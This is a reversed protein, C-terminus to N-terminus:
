AGQLVYNNARLREMDRVPPLGFLRSYERSFQSPSEYGVRHGATAADVQDNLLMRRAEQLRLQKQYQLPSMATISKFHAHLSSTSMCAVRALEDISLSKQYDSKLVRIVKAIQQAHSESLAIQRLMDGQNSQLLRYQIERIILPALASIDRPTDLLSMLRVAADLLSSDAESLYMGRQTQRSLIPQVSSQQEALMLEGIEQPNLDLRLCLYPEDASAEIVQGALPLDVSIVLYHLPGYLYVEEGLMVRKRGQAVICVAPEHVLHIIETTSNNRIVHVRKIPTEVMGDEVLFQGLKNALERTKPLLPNAGNAAAMENDTM